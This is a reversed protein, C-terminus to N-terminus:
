MKTQKKFTKWRKKNKLVTIKRFFFGSLNDEQLKCM